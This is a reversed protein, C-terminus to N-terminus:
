ILEFKSPDYRRCHSTADGTYGAPCTCVAIQNRVDCQANTGCAKACPNVCQFDECVKFSPCESNATLWM